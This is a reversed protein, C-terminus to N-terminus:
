WPASHRDNSSQEHLRVVLLDEHLLAVEDGGHTPPLASGAAALLQADGSAPRDIADRRETNEVEIFAALVHPQLTEMGAYSHFLNQFVGAEVDDNRVM